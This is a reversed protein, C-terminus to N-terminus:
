GLEEFLSDKRPIRQAVWYTFVASHSSISFSPRHTAGFLPFWFHPALLPPSVTCTSLRILDFTRPSALASKRAGVFAASWRTRELQLHRGSDLSSRLPLFVNSPPSVRSIHSFTPDESSLLPVSTSTSSSCSVDPVTEIRVVTRKAKSKAQMRSSCSKSPSSSAGDPRSRDSTPEFWRHTRAHSFM